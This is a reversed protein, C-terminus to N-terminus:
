RRYTVGLTVALPAQRNSASGFAGPQGPAVNGEQVNTAVRQAHVNLAQAEADLREGSLWRELSCAARLSWDVTMPLRLERDDGPDNLDGPDIGRPARRDFYGGLNANYDLRSYPGGSMVALSTGITLGLAAFTYGAAVKAVHTHDGWLPGYAFQKQRPNALVTPAVNLSNTLEDLDSTGRLQSLTYSALFSGTRAIRGRLALEGGVYERFLDSRTSLSYHPQPMGDRFGIVSSGTENWVLNTEVSGILDSFRRYIGSTRVSLWPALSQEAGLTLETSHPVARSKSPDVVNGTNGGTAHDFLDFQRTAPDFRYTERRFSPGFFLPLALVGTQQFRGLSGRLVTTGREGVDWTAGLRPGLWGNFSALTSGDAAHVRGLDVRWGPQLRVGKGVRWADQLFVAVQLGSGSTTFAGPILMGDAGQTGARLALDCHDVLGAEPDCPGGASQLLENGPLAQQYLVSAPALEVGAKLEHAGLAEFFRAVTAQLQV